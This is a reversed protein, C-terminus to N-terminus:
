FAIEHAHHDVYKNVYFQPFADLSNSSEFDVPLFGDGACGILHAGHLITDLHIVDMILNDNIDIDPEVMWMGTDPCPEDGVPSYWSVLACPYTVQQHTVSLFLQVCAVELGRFGDLVTQGPKCVYVTDYRRPGKWWLEVARIREQFMVGIGSLDSPAYYSAVASPFVRVRGSVQPCQVLPVHEAPTNDEPHLQAYLFCLSIHALVTEAMIDDDVGENDDDEPVSGANTSTQSPLPPTSSPLLTSFLLSAPAVHGSMDGCLMSRAMFDVKAVALKDLRQNTLLMQSLAEFRSSRQWPEKVAKIHKSETISSCLGNPTGFERILQVYHTMSHQRPLSYGDPRVADFAVRDCHFNAILTTLTDLDDEDLVSRRVLYCFEMFSAVARVMQPPIHGSIAPLYVKMLGKSDDGTWQKFGRGQHFQHLGPFLPVSTIRRDIDAMIKKAVQEPYIHEIYRTVWTVLHDKFTGKIIQHLLDPSLLEHIDACPFQHTFPMIGSVIGYDDWLKTSGMVDMLAETLEHSQRCGDEGHRLQRACWNQVICALLVQEPYDAIYPSPGYITWRYFGNCFRVLEHETMGKPIALFAILSLANRHACRVNNHVLRNSMYLPYYDNQGTAVSVMTKDSGLIIPCFTSGQNHPDETLVDAQRWAWQGSMLDSYQQRGFRDTVVKPTFDMEKAFDPNSLQNHLVSQPDRFWVNYEKTKWSATNDPAVKGNYSISFSRWPVDGLQIDDITRYMNDKSLFPPDEDDPLTAAWIELLKNIQSASMQTEHFLMDNISPHYYINEKALKEPAQNINPSDTNM